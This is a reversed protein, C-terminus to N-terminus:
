GADMPAAAGIGLLLGAEAPVTAAKPTSKTDDDFIMNCLTLFYHEKAPSDTREVEWISIENTFKKPPNHSTYNTLTASVVHARDGVGLQRIGEMLLAIRSAETDEGQLVGCTNGAAEGLTFGCRECWPDNAGVICYPPTTSTLVGPQPEWSRKSALQPCVDNFVATPTSAATSASAGARHNAEAAAKAAAADVAAATVAAVGVAAVGVAAGAAATDAGAVSAELAIKDFGMMWLWQDSVSHFAGANSPGAVDVSVQVSISSAAAETAANSDASADGGSDHPERQLEILRRTCSDISALPAESAVPPPLAAAPAVAAPSAAAAARPLPASAHPATLRPRQRLPQAHLPMQHVRQNAVASWASYPPASLAAAQAAAAMHAVQAQAQPSWQAGGMMAGGHMARAAPHMGTASSMGMASGMAGMAGGQMRNSAGGGMGLHMGLHMGPMGPSPMGTMGGLQIASRAMLAANRMAEAGQRM